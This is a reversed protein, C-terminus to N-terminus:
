GRRLPSCVAGSPRCCRGSLGEDDTQLWYLGLMTSRSSLAVLGYVGVTMALAIAALVRCTRAPIADGVIGLTIV